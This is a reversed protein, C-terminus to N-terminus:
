VHARGIKGLFRAAKERLGSGGSVGESRCVVIWRGKGGAGNQGPAKAYDLKQGAPAHALDILRFVQFQPFRHCQLRNAGVQQAIGADELAKPALNMQGLLDSM